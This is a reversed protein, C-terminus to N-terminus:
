FGLRRCLATIDQICKWVEPLTTPTFAGDDDFFCVGATDVAPTSIGSAITNAGADIIQAHVIKHAIVGIFPRSRPRTFCFSINKTAVVATLEDVGAWCPCTPADAHAPAALAFLTVILVILRIMM